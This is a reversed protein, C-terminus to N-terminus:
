GVHCTNPLPPQLHNQKRGATRPMEEALNVRKLIEGNRGFFVLRKGDLPLIARIGECEFKEGAFSRSHLLIAHSVTGPDSVGLDKLIEIVLRRISPIKLDDDM